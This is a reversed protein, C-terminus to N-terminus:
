RVDVDNSVDDLVLRSQTEEKATLSPRRFPSASKFFSNPKEGDLITADRVTAVTDMSPSAAIVDAM